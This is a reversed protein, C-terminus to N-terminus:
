ACGSCSCKKLILSRTVALGVYADEKQLLVFKYETEPAGTRWEFFNKSKILANPLNLQWKLILEEIGELKLFESRTLIKVNYKRSNISAMLNIILLVPDIIKSLFKIKKPLLHASKIPRLFMPLKTVIKWGVKLHGPIVEPRIPYGSVFDYGASALEDTAYFGIKTFVGQGRVQPHTMVDCVMGCLYSKGNIIYEYPLAAYYGVINSSKRAVYEAPERNNLNSNFKWRYHDISSVSTGINEPFSLDFLKRQEFLDSAEDFHAFQLDM